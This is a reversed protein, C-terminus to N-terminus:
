FLVPIKKKKLFFGLCKAARINGTGVHGQRSLGYQVRSLLVAHYRGPGYCHAGAGSAAKQAKSAEKQVEKETESFFLYFYLEIQSFLIIIISVFYYM